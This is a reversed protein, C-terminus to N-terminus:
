EQITTVTRIEKKQFTMWLTAICLIVLLTTLPLVISYFGFLLCGLTAIFLGISFYSMKHIKQVDLTLLGTQAERRVRAQVILHIVLLIAMFVLLANLSEDLNAPGAIVAAAINRLSNDVFVTSTSSTTGERADISGYGIFNMGNQSLISGSNDSVQGKNQGQSSEAENELGPVSVGQLKLSDMFARFEQIEEVQSSNLPFARNCVIENVKKKTLIYVFSTSSEHGWPTLIDSEYREQFIGVADYTARDFVGTIELDKFGELERLFVQLKIVEIPDNNWDIRLYDELYDCTLAVGLVQPVARSSGGRSRSGGGSTNPQNVTITTSASAGMSSNTCTIMYETTSSPSVVM